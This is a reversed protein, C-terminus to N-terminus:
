GGIGWSMKVIDDKLKVVLEQGQGIFLFAIYFIGISYMFLLNEALAFLSNINYSMVIDTIIIIVPFGLLYYNSSKNRILFYGVSSFATKVYNKNEYKKLIGDYWRDYNIKSNLYYYGVFLSMFFILLIIMTGISNDEGNFNVFFTDKDCVEIISDGCTTFTYTGLAIPTFSYNYAQGNKTMNTNPYTITGNPFELSDLTTFTCVGARCYNTIQMEENIPFTGIKEASITTIMLVVVLILIFQKNM